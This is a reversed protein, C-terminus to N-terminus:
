IEGNTFCYTVVNVVTCRNPSEYVRLYQMESNKIMKNKFPSSFGSIERKCIFTIVKILAFLLTKRQYTCHQLEVRLDFVVINVVLAGGDQILAVANCTDFFFM